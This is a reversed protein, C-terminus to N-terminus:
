SHAKSKFGLWLGKSTTTTCIFCDILKSAKKNKTKTQSTAKPKEINEKIKKLKFYSGADLYFNGDKTKYLIMKYKNCVQPSNHKDGIPKDKTALNAGM